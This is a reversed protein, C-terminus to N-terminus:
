INYSVKDTEKPKNHGAVIICNSSRHIIQEPPPQSSYGKSPEDTKGRSGSPAPPGGVAGSSAGSLPNAAKTAM